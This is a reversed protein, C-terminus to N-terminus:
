TDGVHQRFSASPMPCSPNETVCGYSGAFGIGLFVRSNFTWHNQELMTNVKPTYSGPEFDYASLLFV